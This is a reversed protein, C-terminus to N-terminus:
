VFFHRSNVQDLDFMKFIRELEQIASKSLERVESSLKLKEKVPIWEVLAVVNKLRRLSKLSWTPNYHNRSILMYPPFPLVPSSGKWTKISFESCPFFGQKMTEPGYALDQLKFPHLKESERSYDQKAPAAEVRAEEKQIEM